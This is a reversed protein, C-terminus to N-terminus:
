QRVKGEWLQLVMVLCVETGLRTWLLGVHGEDNLTRGKM